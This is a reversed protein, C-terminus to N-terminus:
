VALVPQAVTAAVLVTVMLGSGVPIVPVSCTHWPSVVVNFLVGDPPVQLLGSIVTVISPVAPAILPAPAPM